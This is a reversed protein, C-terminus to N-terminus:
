KLSVVPSDGAELEMAKQGADTVIQVDLHELAPFTKLARVEVTELKGISACEFHYHAHFGGHGGHGKHEEFGEAEVEVEEIACGAGAPLVVLTSADSLTEMARKVAAKDEATEAHHEFGVSDAGPIEFELELEDGEVAMNLTARGHEHPEGSARAPSALFALSLVSASVVPLRCVTSFCAKM